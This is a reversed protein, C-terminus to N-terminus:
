RASCREAVAVGGHGCKAGAGVMDTRWGQMAAIGYKFSDNEGEETEQPDACCAAPHSLAASPPPPNAGQWAVWATRHAAIARQARGAPVRCARGCGPRAGQDGRRSAKDRVPSSLYAGM